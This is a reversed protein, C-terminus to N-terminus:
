RSTGSPPPELGKLEQEMLMVFRGPEVEVGRRTEGHEVTEATSPNIMRQRLPVRDPQLFLRCGTNRNRKNM